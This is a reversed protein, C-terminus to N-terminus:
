SNIRQGNVSGRLSWLCTAVATDRFFHVNINSAVVAEYKVDQRQVTEILSIKTVPQGHSLTGRYDDSYVRRFFTGNNHQMARTTENELAIIEQRRLEPNSRELMCAQMCEERDPRSEQMLFRPFVLGITLLMAMKNM